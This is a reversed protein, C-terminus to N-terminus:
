LCWLVIVTLLINRMCLIDHCSLQSVLSIDDDAINIADDFDVLIKITKKEM